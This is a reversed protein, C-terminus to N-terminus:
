TLLKTREVAHVTADVNFGLEGLSAAIAFTGLGSLVTGYIITTPGGNLLAYGITLSIGTWSSLVTL